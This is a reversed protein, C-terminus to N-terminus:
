RKDGLEEGVGLVEAFFICYVFIMIDETFAFYLCGIIRIASKLLSIM